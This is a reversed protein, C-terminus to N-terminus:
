AVGGGSSGYLGVAHVEDLFTLANFEQALDCIESIPAISGNMSYVSEFVIVKPALPKSNELKIRLDNLDNHQFIM